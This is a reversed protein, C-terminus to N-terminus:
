YLRDLLGDFDASTSGLASLVDNLVVEDIATLVGQDILGQSVRHGIVVPLQQYRGAVGAPDPRNMMPIGGSVTPTADNFRSLAQSGNLRQTMAKAQDTECLSALIRLGEQTWLNKGDQIVYAEGEILKDPQRHKKARITPVAVGLLEAIQNTTYHQM